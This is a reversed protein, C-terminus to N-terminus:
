PLREVVTLYAALIGPGGAVITEATGHVLLNHHGCGRGSFLRDIEYGTSTTDKKPNGIEFLVTATASDSCVIDIGTIIFQNIGTPYDPTLGFGNTSDLLSPKGTTATTAPVTQAIDCNGSAIEVTGLNFTCDDDNLLGSLSWTIVIVPIIAM